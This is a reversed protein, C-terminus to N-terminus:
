SPTGSNPSSQAEIPNGKGAALVRIVRAPNGAVVTWPEVDRTVVSAAGVVAGEGITVGPLISAGFGIWVKDCIKVPAVAVHTWDKQGTLWDTVDPARKEFDVNHSQHDVITVGWSILVDAGIEISKAVAILGKGVFTRPGIRASAGDKDLVLYGSFIAQPGIEFRCRHRPFLSTSRLQATSSVSLEAGARWFRWVALRRM